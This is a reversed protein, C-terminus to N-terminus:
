QAAWDVAENTMAFVLHAGAHLQAHSVLLSTLPTGDLTVSQVYVADPSANTADITLTGGAVQVEAHPFLPSGLVYQDTGAIPYLGLASFIWWASMTGGDDNGPIGDAGATFTEHMAWRTWRATLSPRGFRAFLYPAHIDPENGAWYYPHMESVSIQNTWDLADYDAKGNEFFTELASAAADNSGFLALYGDVDHPAGWLTQGANAEVFEGDFDTPDDHRGWWSGDANKAWCFKSDTDFLNKWSHARTLLTAADDTHGLAQAFNGLALDDQAYEMTVSVSGSPDSGPAPVFGDNMYAVVRDRGGRGGPPDTPDMAAARLITWAGEADFDTIGKLYADAIVVEASAGVMSGSDSGALPWKPFVGTKQAMAVLSRMVDRARDPAVLSWFPNLTRYTDWLSLETMFHFDSATGVGGGYVYRGDVDSTVSPMLFAHYLAATMMAREDDTGGDFAVVGMAKTWADAAAQKEADFDFTPTETAFNNRAGALDVFSVAVQMEITSGVSPDFDLALGVGSGSATTGAAPAGLDTWTSSATWPQKTKASFYLDFGGSMGGTTQLHGEITQKTADVTVDASKVSGGGTLHHDLDFIVHPTAGAAFTYRHHAVHATATLEVQIGDDLKVSYYGPAGSENAHDFTATHNKAVDAGISTMPMVGLVGYDVSGTGHLHLHSFASVIHDDYWYGSCHLFALTGGISQTDPGVKAMGQPVAAGAFANGVNFGYGGTGIFVPAVPTSRPRTPTMDLAGDTGADGAPAENSSGKCAACVIAFTALAALGSVLSRRMATITVRTPGRSLERM